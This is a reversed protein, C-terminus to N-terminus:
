RAVWILALVVSLLGLVLAAATALVLIWAGMGPRHPTM